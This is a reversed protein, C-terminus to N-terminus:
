TNVFVKRIALMEGVQQVMPVIQPKGGEGHMTFYFKVGGQTFMKWGALASYKSSDSAVLTLTKGNISIQGDSGVAFAYEKGGITMKYTASVSFTQSTIEM